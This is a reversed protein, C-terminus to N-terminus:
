SWKKTQPRAACLAREYLFSITAHLRLAFQLIAILPVIASGSTVRRPNRFIADSAIAEVSADV